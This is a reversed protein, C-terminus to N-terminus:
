RGRRGFHAVSAAADATEPVSLDPVPQVLLTHDYRVAVEDSPPDGHRVKPASVFLVNRLLSRVHAPQTDTRDFRRFSVLYDVAEEVVGSDRASGLGLRRSGDGGSERNVQVAVTVVVGHRKALAKIERAHQSVRAYEDLRRDGGILGLHDITVARIPIDRMPGDQLRRLLRSMDAITLDQRDVVWVTGMQARYADWDIADRRARHELDHRGCGLIAQAFRGIIQAGPMELSFFVHGIREAASYRAQHCLLVTKGMSPRAMLGVVEGSGFGGFAEDLAPVGLFVEGGARRVIEAQYVARSESADFWVREQTTSQRAADIASLAQDVESAAFANRDAELTEVLRRAGVLAARHAALSKLRAVYSVLGAASARPTGDPLAAIQAITWAHRAESADLAAFLTLTDVAEGAALLQRALAWLAGHEPLAFDEAALGATELAQAADYGVVQALTARELELLTGALRCTAM